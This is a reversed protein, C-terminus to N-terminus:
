VETKYVCTVTSDLLDANLLTREVWHVNDAVTDLSVDYEGAFSQMSRYEQRYRLTLILKDTMTLKTFRPKRKHERRYAENLACLMQEFTEKSVGFHAHFEFESMGALHEEVIQRVATEEVEKMGSSESSKNYPSETLIDLFAQWKPFLHVGNYM